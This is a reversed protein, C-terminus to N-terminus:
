RESIFKEIAAKADRMSGSYESLRSVGLAQRVDEHSLGMKETWPWFKAMINQDQTWHLPRPEPEEAQTPANKPIEGTEIDVVVPKADPITEIESEDLIGLGCISLTARRKAKTEARMLANALADGRLRKWQGASKFLRKGGNAQVWEGEEKELSVVGTAFDERGDPTSAIVEVAYASGDEIFERRTVRLTVHHIRRLQDTAERRAYLTLKGDLTLYAFPQTAPNLSLSACVAKYYAVRQSPTAKSLDGLILVQELAEGTADEGSKALNATYPVSKESM